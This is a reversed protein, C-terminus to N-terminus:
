YTTGVLVQVPLTHVLTTNTTTTATVLVTYTGATVATGTLQSGASGGKLNNYYDQQPGSAVTAGCGTMGFGVIALVCVGLLSQWKRRRAPLGLLFICALTTGGSAIWWRTGPQVPATNSAIGFGGAAGVVLTKTAYGSTGITATTTTTALSGFGCALGAPVTSRVGALSYGVVSCSLTIPTSSYASNFNYLSTLRLNYNAQVVPSKLPASQNVTTDSQLSFDAGTRDDSITINQVASSAGDQALGTFLFYYGSYIVSIQVQGSPLALYGNQRPMVFTANGSSDVTLSNTLQIGDAFVSVKPQSCLFFCGSPDANPSAVHISLTLSDSAPYPGTQNTIGNTDSITFSTTTTGNFLPSTTDVIATASSGTYNANVAPNYTATLSGGTLNLKSVSVSATAIANGNQDFGQILPLTQAPNTNFTVTGTPATGNSPLTASQVTATMYIFGSNASASTPQLSTKTGAKTISALYPGTQCTTFSADGPYTLTISHSGLALLNSSFTASGESNIPLTTILTGGDTVNISGSPIGVNNTTAASYPEVTISIPSGYAINTSSGININHGYVVMQCAEPKVTLTAPTAAGVSSAYTGDGAYRAYINYTGGPLINATDNATGGSLTLAEIATDAQLPSSTFIGVDGTPSTGTGSAPKAIATFKLWTSHTTCNPTTVGGVVCVPAKNTLPDIITLSVSSATSGAAKYNIVFSGIDLSGFGTAADYGAVAASYGNMHSGTTCNLTGNTCALENTGRTVDHYVIKAGTILSYLSPNINGLGSATSSNLKNVALAVAGAFVASSAETGGSYTFQVTGTTQCDSSQM